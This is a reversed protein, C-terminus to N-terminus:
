GSQQVCYLPLEGFCNVGGAAIETWTADVGDSFGTEGVGTTGNTWDACSQNALPNAQGNSLTYTWVRTPAPVPNGNEDLNIANQITGDTLDQWSNAIRTGNVLQYPGPNRTFRNAPSQTTTSLWARYSGPLNAQQALTNCITDAGNLGNLDANHESSTIFVRCPGGAGCKPPRQPRCKGNRCRQGKKCRRGCKGCNKRDRKM